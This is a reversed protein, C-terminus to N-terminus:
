SSLRDIAKQVKQLDGFLDYLEAHGCEVALVEAPPDGPAADHPSLDLELLATPDKRRSADGSEAMTLHMAWASATVVRPGLIHRERLAGVYATAGNAWVAKFIAAHPADVGDGLLQRELAEPRQVAYAASEFVFACLECLSRLDKASVGLVSGLQAEEAEDFFAAGSREGLRELIRKLLLPFKKEPISNVLPMLAKSAAMRAAAGDL